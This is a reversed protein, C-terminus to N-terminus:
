KAKKGDVQGSIPIVEVEDQEEAQDLLDQHAKKNKFLYSYTEARVKECLEQVTQEYGLKESSFTINTTAMGISGNAVKLSGTVKIGALKDSGVFVIGSVKFRENQAEGSDRAEKVLDDDGKVNDRAFDWGPTLLLLKAVFPKLADLANTLDPHPLGECEVNYKDKTGGKEFYHIDLGDDSLKVKQLDFNQYDLKRQMIYFKITLVRKKNEM